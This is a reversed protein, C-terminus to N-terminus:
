NNLTSNLFKFMAEPQNTSLTGNLHNSAGELSYNDVSDKM